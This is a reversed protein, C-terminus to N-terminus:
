IIQTKIEDIHEIIITGKVKGIDVNAFLKILRKNEESTYITGGRWSSNLGVLHDAHLHSLFSFEVSLPLSKWRDVSIVGDLILGQGLKSNSPM